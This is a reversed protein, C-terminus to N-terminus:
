TTEPAGVIGLSEQHHDNTRVTAPPNTRIPLSPLLRSKWAIRPRRQAPLQQHPRPRRRRQPRFHIFLSPVHESSIPLGRIVTLSVDAKQDTISDVSEYDRMEDLAGAGVDGFVAIVLFSREM